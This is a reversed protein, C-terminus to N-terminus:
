LDARSGPPACNTEPNDAINCGNCVAAANIESLERATKIDAVKAKTTSLRVGVNENDGTSLTESTASAIQGLGATCFSNAAERQNSAHVLTDESTGPLRIAVNVTGITETYSTTIAASGLEPNSNNIKM